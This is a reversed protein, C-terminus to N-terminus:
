ITCAELGRQALLQVDKYSFKTLHTAGIFLVNKASIQGDVKFLTYAGEKPLKNRIFSTNNTLCQVVIEDLGWLGQAHKLILVDCSFELANENRLEIKFTM